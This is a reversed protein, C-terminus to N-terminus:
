SGPLSTYVDWLVSQDEQNMLFSNINSTWAELHQGVKSLNENMPESFVNIDKIWLFYDIFSMLPMIAGDLRPIIFHNWERDSSQFNAGPTAM